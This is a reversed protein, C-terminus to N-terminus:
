VAGDEDRHGIQNIWNHSENTQTHRAIGDFCNEKASFRKLEIRCEAATNRHSGCHSEAFREFDDEAACPRFSKFATWRPNAVADVFKRWKMFTYAVSIKRRSVSCDDRSERSNEPL